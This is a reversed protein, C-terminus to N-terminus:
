AQRTPPPTSPSRPSTSPGPTPPIPKAATPRTTGSSTAPLSTAHRPKSPATSPSITSRRPASTKPASTTLRSPPLPLDGTASRSSSFPALTALLSQAAREVLKGVVMATRSAVTPGSNPVQGTDPQAILIQDYPLHLTQAAIQCLITNTGQGFETSSVLLRPQGEPTLEM